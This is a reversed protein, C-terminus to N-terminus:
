YIRAFFFRLFVMVFSLDIDALPPLISISIYVSGLRRVQENFKYKKKNGSDGSSSNPGLWCLVCDILKADNQACLNNHFCWNESHVSHAVSKKREWEEKKRKCTRGALACWVRLASSLGSVPLYLRTSLDRMPKSSSQINWEIKKRISQSSSSITLTARVRASWKGCTTDIHSERNVYWFPSALLRM